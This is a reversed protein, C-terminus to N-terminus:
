FYTENGSNRISKKLLNLIEISIKKKKLLGLGQLIILITFSYTKEQTIGLGKEIMKLALANVSMRLRKAEQKLLIMVESPIGRLNFASM